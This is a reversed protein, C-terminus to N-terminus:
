GGPTKKQRAAWQELAQSIGEQITIKIGQETKLSEIAQHFEAWATKDATISFQKWQRAKQLSYGRKKALAELEELTMDEDSPAMNWM